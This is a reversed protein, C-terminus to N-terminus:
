FGIWAAHQRGYGGWIKDRNGGTKVSTGMDAPEFVGDKRKVEPGNKSIGGTGEWATKWM